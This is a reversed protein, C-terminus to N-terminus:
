DMLENMTCPVRSDKPSALRKWQHQIHRRLTIHLRYLFSTLVGTLVKMSIIHAFCGLPLKMPGDEDRQPQM